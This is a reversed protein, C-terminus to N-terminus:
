VEGYDVGKNNIIINGLSDWELGEWAYNDESELVYYVDGIENNISPLDNITPVSGKFTYINVIDHKNAKADLAQKINNMQIDVEKQTYMQNLQNQLEEIQTQDIGGSNQIMQKIIGLMTIDLKM